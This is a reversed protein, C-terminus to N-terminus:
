KNWRFLLYSLTAPCLTATGLITYFWMSHERAIPWLTHLLTM